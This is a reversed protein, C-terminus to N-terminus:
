DHVRDNLESRLVDRISDLTDLDTHDNPLSGFNPVPRDLLQAIQDDTLKIARVLLYEPMNRVNM